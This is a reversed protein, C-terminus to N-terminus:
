FPGGDVLDMTWLLGCLGSRGCSDVLNVLDVLDVGDVTWWTWLTWATWKRGIDLVRHGPKLSPSDFSRHM